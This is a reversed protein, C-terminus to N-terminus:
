GEIKVKNKYFAVYDKIHAAAEKPNPYYWAANEFVKEGVRIHYYSADGKWSCHTTLDSPTFYQRDLSDSPFYHNNEVQKTQDSQALTTDEIKVTPM